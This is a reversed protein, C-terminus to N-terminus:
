GPATPAAFARSLPRATAEPRAPPSRDRDVPTRRSGPPTRPRRVVASPDGRAPRAPSTRVAPLSRSGTGASRPSAGSRLAWRAAVRSAPGRDAPAPLPRIRVESVWLEQVRIATGVYGRVLPHSRH